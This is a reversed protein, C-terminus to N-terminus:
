QSVSMNELRTSLSEPINGNSSKAPLPDDEGQIVEMWKSTILKALEPPIKSFGEADAPRPTGDNYELNWGKLVEDGILRNTEIVQEIDLRRAEPTEGPIIVNQASDLIAWFVAGSVDLRCTVEAGDYATGVFDFTVTNEPIKFGM